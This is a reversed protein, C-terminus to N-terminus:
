LMILANALGTIGLGIRRSARAQQRQQPLPYASLDIVNDLLRVATTSLRQIGEFDFAAESSFPHM